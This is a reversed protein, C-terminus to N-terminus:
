TGPFAAKVEARVAAVFLFYATQPKKVVTGGGTPLVEASADESDSRAPEAEFDLAQDDEFASEASDEVPVPGAPELAVLPLTDTEDEDRPGSDTFELSVEDLLQQSPATLEESFTWTGQTSM